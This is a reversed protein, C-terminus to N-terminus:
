FAIRAGIEFGRATDDYGRNFYNLQVGVNDIINYYGGIDFEVGELDDDVSLVALEAAVEFKSTVPLRGQAFLRPGFEADDDGNSDYMAIGGGVTLDWSRMGIIYGGELVAHRIQIDGGSQDRSYRQLKGRAVIGSGLQYSGDLGAATDSDVGAIDASIYSVDLYNHSLRGSSNWKADRVATTAAEREQTEWRVNEEDEPPVFAERDEATIRRNSSTSRSSRSSSRSTSTSRSSSRTSTSRTSARTIGVTRPAPEDDVLLDIEDDGVDSATSSDADEVFSVEGTTVTTSSSSEVEISDDIVIGSPTSSTAEFQGGLLLFRTKKDLTGTTELENDSQFTRLAKRTEENMAGTASGPKYGLKSLEQQAASIEADAMALTSAAMLAVATLVKKM